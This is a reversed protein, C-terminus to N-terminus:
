PKRGEFIAKRAHCAQRAFWSAPAQGGFKGSALRTAYSRGSIRCHSSTNQRRKKANAGCNLREAMGFPGFTEAPPESEGRPSQRAGDSLM